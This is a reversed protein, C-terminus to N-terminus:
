RIYNAMLSLDCAVSELMFCCEADDFENAKVIMDILPIFRNNFLFGLDEMQKFYSEDIFNNYRRFGARLCDEYLRLDKEIDLLKVVM